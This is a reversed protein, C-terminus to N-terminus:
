TNGQTECRHQTFTVVPKNVKKEVRPAGGHATKFSPLFPKTYGGMEKRIEQGRENNALYLWPRQVVVGIKGM